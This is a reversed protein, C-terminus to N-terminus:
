PNPVALKVKDFRGETNKGTDAETGVGFQLTRGKIESSGGDTVDAVEEGNVLARVRDGVVALRLKNLQGPTGIAPDSGNVPFGAGAPQRRLVFDRGKPFVRLEYRNGGGVRASITLYADDRINKPTSKLIRGHADWLHDPRPSDGEVPPKLLCAGPGKRLEVDLVGRKRLFERHCQKSDGALAVQRAQGRKSFPNTYVDVVGLAPAALAAALGVAGVPALHRLRLRGRRSTM